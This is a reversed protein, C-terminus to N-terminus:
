SKVPAVVRLPGASVVVGGPKEVTIAFITPKDVYLKADIPVIVEGDKNVDFVGGDVPHSDVDPDVIWLQYQQVTPDNVPMGVLRMYGQQKSDSWVVDGKVKGYVPDDSEVWESRVVDDTQTLLQQRQSAYGAPTQNVSMALWATVSIALVAAAALWGWAPHRLGSSAQTQHKKFLLTPAQDTTDSKSAIKAEGVAILKESLSEPMPELETQAQMDFVQYAAAATLELGEMDEGSEAQELLADLEEVESADLGAGAQEALLELLRDDHNHAHDTM